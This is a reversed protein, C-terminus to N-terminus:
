AKRFRSRLARWEGALADYGPENPETRRQRHWGERVLVMAVGVFLSGILGMVLTLVRGRPDPLVPLSPKEIV